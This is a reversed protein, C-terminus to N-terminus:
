KAATTDAKTGTITYSVTCPLAAYGDTGIAASCDTGNAAAFAYSLTGTFATIPTGTMTMAVADTRGITCGTPNTRPNPPIVTAMTSASMTVHSAPDIIGAVPADGQKWYLTNRDSSLKVDFEWPNPANGCSSTTLTSVVHFSGIPTGPNYPDTGTCSVVMALVATLSAVSAHRSPSAVGRHVRVRM